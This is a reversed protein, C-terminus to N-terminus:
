APGVNAIQMVLNPARQLNDKEFLGLHKAAMTLGSMKDWLKVEKTTGIQERDEGRGAFLETIKVGSVAAATDNDWDQIRKLSGDENHLKRTDSFAVREIEKLVREATLGSAQVAQETAIELM